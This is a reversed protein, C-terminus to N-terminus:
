ASQGKAPGAGSLLQGAYLGGRRATGFVAGHVAINEIGAEKCIKTCIEYRDAGYKNLDRKCLYCKVSQEIEKLVGDSPKFHATIM